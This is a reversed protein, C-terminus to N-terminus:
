KNKQAEAWDRKCAIDFPACDSAAWPFPKKRVKKFAAPPDPDQHHDHSFTLYTMVVCVGAGAISLYKWKSAEAIESVPGYEPISYRMPDEQPTASMARCLTPTRVRALRTSRVLLSMKNAGM